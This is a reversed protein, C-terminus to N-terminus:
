ASEERLIRSASLGAAAGRGPRTVTREAQQARAARAQAAQRTRADLAGDRLGGALRDADGDVSVIQDGARIGARAAPSSPYVSQVRFGRPRNEEGRSSRRAACGVWVPASRASSCCTTWSAGPATSRSRSASARRAASSRPRSASWTATSTSSRDAPTAPISRPTPRSSTPTSTSTRARSAAGPAGLRRGGHRHELPRLPQRDRRDDRRDHPGVLLGLKLAPLRAAAAQARAPRRPRQRRRLRRRRVRAGHGGEDDGHDELRGLRRPRQHPHHGQRRHDVGSGLSQSTRQRPAPRLRLLLRRLDVAPPAPDARRLHQRRRPLGERRGPRDRQAPDAPSRASSALRRGASRPGSRRRRPTKVLSCLPPRGERRAMEARLLFLGAALRPEFHGFPSPRDVQAKSTSTTRPRGQERRASIKITGPSPTRASPFSSRSCATALLRGQDERPGRQEPLQLQPRVARLLARRPPLEQRGDGERVEARRAADAHRERTQIEIQDEQFGPLEATIVIRDKEEAIDVPRCGLRGLSM